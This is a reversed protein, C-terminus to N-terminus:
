PEDGVSRQERSERVVDDNAAILSLLGKETAAVVLDIQFTQSSISLLVVDRDISVIREFFL